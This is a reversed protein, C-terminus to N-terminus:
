QKSRNAKRKPGKPKLQLKQLQLNEIQLTAPLRLENTRIVIAGFHLKLQNDHATITLRDRDNKFTISRAQVKSRPTQLLVADPGTSTSSATAVIDFGQRTDDGFCSCAVWHSLALGLFFLPLRHM